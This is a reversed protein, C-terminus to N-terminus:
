DDGLVSAAKEGVRVTCGTEVLTRENVVCAGSAAVLLCAGLQGVPLVQPSVAVTDLGAPVEVLRQLCEPVQVGLGERGPGGALQAGGSFCGPL